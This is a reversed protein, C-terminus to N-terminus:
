ASYEDFTNDQKDDERSKQNRKPLGFRKLLEDSALGKDIWMKMQYLIPSGLGLSAESDIIENIGRALRLTKNWNQEEVPKQREFEFQKMLTQKLYIKEQIWGRYADLYGAKSYTTIWSTVENQHAYRYKYTKYTRFSITRSPLRKNCINLSEEDTYGFMKQEMIVEQILEKEKDKLLPEPPM